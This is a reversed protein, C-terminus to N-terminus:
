DILAIDDMGGIGVPQDYDRLDLRDSYDERQRFIFHGGDHLAPTRSFLNCDFSIVPGALVFERGSM